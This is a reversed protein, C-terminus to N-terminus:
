QIICHNRRVFTAVQEYTCIIIIADMNDFAILHGPKSCQRADEGQSTSVRTVPIAVVQIKGKQM